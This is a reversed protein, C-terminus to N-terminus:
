AKAKGNTPRTQTVPPAHAAGNTRREQAGQMAGAMMMQMMVDMPDGGEPTEAILDANDQLARGYARQLSEIFKDKSANSSTVSNVINALTDFAIQVFKHADALHQAYIKFRETEADFAVARQAKDSKAKVDAVEEETEGDPKVARLLRGSKDLMEVLEPELAQVTDAVDTWNTPSPVEMMTEKGDAHIRISSPRARLLNRRIQIVSM